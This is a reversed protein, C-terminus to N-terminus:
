KRKTRMVENNMMPILIEEHEVKFEENM